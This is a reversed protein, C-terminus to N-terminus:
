NDDLQGGQLDEVQEILKDAERCSIYYSDDYSDIIEVLNHRETTYLSIREFTSLNFFDGFYGFFGWSSLLPFLWRCEKRDVKRISAIDSIPIEVVELTCSITLNKQDVIVRRPISIIVLSIIGVGISIFWASVYGGEYTHATYLAIAALVAFWIMTIVVTYRDTHFKYITSSM